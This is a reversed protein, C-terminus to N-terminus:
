CLCSHLILTLVSVEEFLALQVTIVQGIQSCEEWSQFWTVKWQFSQDNHDLFGWYGWRRGTRISHFHPDPLVTSVQTLTSMEVPFIM